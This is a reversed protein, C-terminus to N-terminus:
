ASLLAIALGLLLLLTVALTWSRLSGEGADLVKQWGRVRLLRGAVAMGSARWRPLVQLGMSMAWRKGRGLWRELISWLDGPAITPISPLKRKAALWWVSGGILLGLVLPWWVDVMVGTPDDSGVAAFLRTAYAAVLLVAWVAWIMPAAVSVAEKQRHILLYIWRVALLTTCLTWWPWLSVMTSDEFLRDGGAPIPILFLIMM